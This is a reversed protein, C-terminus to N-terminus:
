GEALAAALREVGRYIAPIPVAAYGLLLREEEGEASAYRSLPTVRVGHRVASVAAEVADVGVALRGVLHIGAADPPIHLLGRLASRAADLLARQREEYLRRM